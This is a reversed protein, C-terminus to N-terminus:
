SVLLLPVDRNPRIKALPPVELSIVHACYLIVNDEESNSIRRQIIGKLLLSGKSLKVFYRTNFSSVSKVTM